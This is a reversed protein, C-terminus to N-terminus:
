REPEAPASARDVIEQLQREREGRELRVAVMDAIQEMQRQREERGRQQKLADDYDQILKQMELDKQRREAELAEAKRSRREERKFKILEKVFILGVWAGFVIVVVVIGIPSIM